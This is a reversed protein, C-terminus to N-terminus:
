FSVFKLYNPKTIKQINWFITILKLSGFSHLSYIKKKIMKINTFHM